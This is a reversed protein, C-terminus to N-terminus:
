MMRMRHPDAVLLNGEDLGNIDAIDEDTLEFGTVALNEVIRSPTVSKPIVIRGSQLHWRLVVQAPTKGIREAIRGVTLSSLDSGLGLPSYAETVIGNRSNAEEADRQQFSPHYEIQNVSPVVRGQALSEELYEPLFNALGISRILGDAQAQEMAEWAQVRRDLGPVPWHILFLDLYDLGLRQLSEELAVRADGHRSNWLKTTVFLDERALGSARIAEGVGEENDYIAATDIHRYGAELAGVVTPVIQERSVQWVGFGLQPIRHGDNLTVHPITM